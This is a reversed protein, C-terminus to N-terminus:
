LILFISVAPIMVVTAPLPVYPKLPSLPGAVAACNYLGVSTTGSWYPFKYIVSQNFLRTRFTSVAPIIVVNAPVPAAIYEPSLMGAVAACMDGQAKAISSELLM